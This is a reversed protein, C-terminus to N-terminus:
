KASKSTGPKENSDRKAVAEQARVGLATNRETASALEKASLRGNSNASNNSKDKM